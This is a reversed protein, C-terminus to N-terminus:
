DFSFALLWLTEPFLTIFVLKLGIIPEWTASSGFEVVCVHVCKLLVRKSFSAVLTIRLFAFM